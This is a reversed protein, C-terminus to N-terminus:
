KSDLEKGCDRDSHNSMLKEDKDRIYAGSNGSQVIM